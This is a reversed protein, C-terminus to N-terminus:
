CARASNGIAAYPIVVLVLFDRKRIHLHRSTHAALRCRCSLRSHVKDGALIYARPVGRVAHAVRGAALDDLQPTM